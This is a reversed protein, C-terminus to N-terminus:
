GGCGGLGHSIVIFRTYSYKYVSKNKPSLSGGPGFRERRDAGESASLLGMQSDREEGRSAAVNHSEIEIYSRRNRPNSRISLGATRLSSGYLGGAIGGNESAAVIKTAQICNLSNSPKSSAEAKGVIILVPGIAPVM